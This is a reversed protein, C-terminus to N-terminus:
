SAKLTAQRLGGRRNILFVDFKCNVVYCTELFWQLFTNQVNPKLYLKHTWRITITGISNGDMRRLSYTPYKEWGRSRRFSATAIPWLKKLTCTCGVSLGPRSQRHNIDLEIPVLSAALLREFQYGHSSDTFGWRWLCTHAAKELKQAWAMASKGCVGSSEPDYLSIM